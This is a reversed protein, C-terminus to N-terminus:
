GLLREVARNVNGNTATLAAINAARDTFGMDNMSSLQTAFRVEPPLQPLQTLQAVPTASQTVNAGAQFQNILNSFDMGNVTTSAAPAPAAASPPFGMMPPFVGAGGDMSQQMNLMSRMNDPNMMQAMAAPNNLM